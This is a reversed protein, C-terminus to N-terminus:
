KKWQDIDVEESTDKVGLAELKKVLFKIRDMLDQKEELTAQWRSQSYFRLKNRLEDLEEIIKSIPHPAQM